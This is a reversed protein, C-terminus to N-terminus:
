KMTLGQPRVLGDPYPKFGGVKDNYAWLWTRHYTYVIPRDKSTVAALQEYIKKREAPDRAARSKALLDDM